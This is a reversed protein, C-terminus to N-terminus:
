RVSTKGPEAIAVVLSPTRTATTLSLPATRQSFTRTSRSLPASTSILSPKGSVTPDNGAGSGLDAVAHDHRRKTSPARSAAHWHM